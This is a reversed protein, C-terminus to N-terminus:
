GPGPCLCSVVRATRRKRDHMLVTKNEISKIQTEFSSDTFHSTNMLNIKHEHRDLKGTICLTPLLSM